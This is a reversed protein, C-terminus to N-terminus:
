KRVFNSFFGVSKQMHTYLFSLLTRDHDHENLYAHVRAVYVMDRGYLHSACAAKYSILQLDGEALESALIHKSFHRNLWWKCRFKWTKGSMGEVFSAPTRCFRVTHLNEREIQEVDVCMSMRDEECQSLKLLCLAFEKWSTHDGYTAELHLAIMEVLREPAYEGKLHLDLLRALSHRCTPDKKMVNEFCVSLEDYNNTDFCDRLRAKLRFFLVSSSENCSQELIDLAEKGHGGLLLLQILPLLAAESIPPLSQFALKLYKLAEKYHDGFFQRRSSLIDMLNDSSPVRVPLLSQLSHVNYASSCHYQDYAHQFSGDTEESTEVSKMYFDQTQFKKNETKKVGSVEGSLRRNANAYTEKDNVVSTESHYHLNSYTEYISAADEEKLNDTEKSSTNNCTDSEIHMCSEEFNGLRMEKPLESYWLEYNTLGMVLNSKQDRASEYEQQLSHLNVRAFDSNNRALCSLIYELLVSRDKLPSKKTSKIKEKWTNYLHEIRSSYLDPDCEMHQLLEMAVWYKMRNSQPSKERCTGKLLTSLVGTADVWNRQVVLKRLLYRLRMRNERCVNMSGVKLTYSPITLLMPVRKCSRRGRLPHSSILKHSKRQKSDFYNIDKSVDVRDSAHLNDSEMAGM